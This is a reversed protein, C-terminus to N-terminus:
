KTKTGKLPEDQRLDVQQVNMDYEERKKNMNIFIYIMFSIILSFSINQSFFFNNNM